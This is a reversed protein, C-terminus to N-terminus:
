TAKDSAQTQECVALAQGGGLSQSWQCRADGWASPCVVEGVARRPRSPRTGGADLVERSGLPAALTVTVFHPVAIAPKPGPTERVRVSVAVRLDDETVKQDLIVDGVGTMVVIVVIRPNETRRYHDLPAVYTTQASCLGVIVAAVVGFAVLLGGLGPRRM